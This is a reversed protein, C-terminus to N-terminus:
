QVTRCYYFLHENSIHFLNGNLTNVKHHIGNSKTIFSCRINFPTFSYCTFISCLSHMFWISIRWMQSMEGCGYGSAIRWISKYATRNRQCPVHLMQQLHLSACPGQATLELAQTKWSSDYNNEMGLQLLTVAGKTCSSRLEEKRRIRM